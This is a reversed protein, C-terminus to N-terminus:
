NGDLRKLKCLIVFQEATKNDQGVIPIMLVKDGVHWTDTYIISDTYDNDIDHNHSAYEAMGSGGARYQTASVIHGKAHRTHGQLWYEDIWLYQSTLTMGNYSVAINPPPSLIEGIAATAQLGNTASQIMIKLLGNYPDTAKKLTIM